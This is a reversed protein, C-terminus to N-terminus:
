LTVSLPRRSLQTLRELLQNLELDTDQIISVDLVLTMDSLELPYALIEKLNQFYPTGSPEKVQERLVIFQAGSYRYVRYNSDLTTIIREAATKIIIDGYDIGYKQNVEPVNHIRISLLECCDWSSRAKLDENLSTRNLTRTLPDTRQITERLRGELWFVYSIFIVLIILAISSSKQMILLNNIENRHQQSIPSEIRFKDNIFQIIQEFNLEIRKLLPLRLEPQQEILKLSKEVTKFKDFHHEFFLRYNAQAIFKASEKSTLIIDFRSWTLDYALNVSSSNYPTTSVQTILNSYEKVLQLVFWTAENKRDSLDGNISNIRDITFLNVMLVSSTLLVLISKSFNIPIKNVISKIGM